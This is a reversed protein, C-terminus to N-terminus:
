PHSGQGGISSLVTAQTQGNEFWERAGNVLRTAWEEYKRKQRHQARLAFYTTEVVIGVNRTEFQPEGNPLKAVEIEATAPNRLDLVLRDFTFRIQCVPNRLTLSKGSITLETKPPLCLRGTMILLPAQSFANDALSLATRLDKELLVKSDKENSPGHTTTITGSGSRYARRELQWDYENTTCFSLLSFILFDYTLKDRDNSFAMPSTKVLWDSANKEIGIRWPAGLGYNWPRIIQHLRDITIDTGITEFRTSRQFEFPLQILYILTAGVLAGVAIAINRSGGNIWAIYPATVWIVIIAIINLALLIRLLDM